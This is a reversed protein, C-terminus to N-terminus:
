RFITAAIAGVVCIAAYALARSVRLHPAIFVVACVLCAAPFFTM